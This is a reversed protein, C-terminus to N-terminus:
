RRRRRPNQKVSELCFKTHGMRGFRFITVLWGNQILAGTLYQEARRNYKREQILHPSADGDLHFIKLTSRARMRRRSSPLMIALINKDLSFRGWDDIVITSSNELSRILTKPYSINEGIFRQSTKNGVVAFQESVAVTDGIFAKNSSLEVTKTNLAQLNFLWGKGSNSSDIHRSPSGVLLLNEFVAFNRYRLLSANFLEENNDALAILKPRDESLIYFQVYGDKRNSPIDILLPEDERDLRVFYQGRSGPVVNTIAKKKIRTISLADALLTNKDLRLNRGFGNAAQYPISNEPPYIERERYWSGQVNRQYVVIRNAGPDGVVM